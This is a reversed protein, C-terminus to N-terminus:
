TLGLTRAQEDLEEDSLERVDRFDIKVRDVYVGLAKGLLSLAGNSAGYDKERFAAQDNEGLRRLVYAADLTATEAISQRAATLAEQVRPDKLWEHATQKNRRK